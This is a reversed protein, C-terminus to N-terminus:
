PKTTWGPQRLTDRCRKANEQERQSTWDRVDVVNLSAIATGRLREDQFFHYQSGCTTHKNEVARFFTYARTYGKAKAMEQGSLVWSEPDYEPIGARVRNEFDAKPILPDPRPGNRYFDWREFIWTKELEWIPLATASEAHIFTQGNLLVEFFNQTKPGTCTQSLYM